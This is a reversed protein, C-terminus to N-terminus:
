RKAKTMSLFFVSVASLISVTAIMILNIGNSGGLDEDILYRMSWSIFIIWAMLFVATLFYSKVTTSTTTVVAIKPYSLMFAKAGLLGMGIVACGNVVLPKEILFFIFIIAIIGFGIGGIFAYKGKESSEIFKGGGAPGTM